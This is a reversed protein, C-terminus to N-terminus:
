LRHDCAGSRDPAVFYFTNGIAQIFIKDRFLRFLQRHRRFRGVGFADAKHLSLWIGWFLPVVLLTVFFFLYPLRLARQAV